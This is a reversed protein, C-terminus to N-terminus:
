ILENPEVELIGALEYLKHIPMDQRGAELNTISTRTYGMKEALEGQTWNKALRVTAIKNGLNELRSEIVRKGTGNCFTCKVTIKKM